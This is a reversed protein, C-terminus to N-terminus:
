INAWQHQIIKSNRKRKLYSVHFLLSAGGELRSKKKKQDKLRSHFSSSNVTTRNSTTIKM